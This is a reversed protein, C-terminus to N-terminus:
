LHPHDARHGSHGHPLLPFVHPMLFVLPGAAECEVCWMVVVWTRGVVWLLLLLLVVVRRMVVEMVM